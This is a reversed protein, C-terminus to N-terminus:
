KRKPIYVIGETIYRQHRTSTIHEAKNVKTFKGGCPCNTKKNIENKDDLRYQKRTRRARHINLTSQLLVM